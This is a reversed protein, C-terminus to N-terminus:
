NKVAGKMMPFKEILFNSAAQFAFNNKTLIDKGHLTSYKILITRARQPDKDIWKEFQGCVTRDAAYSRLVVLATEDEDEDLPVEFVFVKRNHEEMWINYQDITVGEPLLIKNDSNKSM